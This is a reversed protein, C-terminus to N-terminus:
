EKAARSLLILFIVVPVFTVALSVPLFWAGLNRGTSSWISMYAFILVLVLKMTVVLNKVIGYIRKANTKTVTVGTNWWAPHREVLEIFLYMLVMAAPCVWITYRSGYGDIVGAGNYHTPIQEPLRGFIFFLYLFTGAHLFTCLYKVLKHFRTVSIEIEPKSTM